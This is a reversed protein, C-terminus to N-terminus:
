MYIFMLRNDVYFLVRVILLAISRIHFGIQDHKDDDSEKIHLEKRENHGGFIM